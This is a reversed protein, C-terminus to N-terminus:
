EDDTGQVAMSQRLALARALVADRSEGVITVHAMKRGPGVERKDYCHIHVGDGSADGDFGVYRPQGHAGDAGLVNFTVATGRMGAPRLGLGAVARLHQEFQSVACAEITYHGSNHPRPSIENVLLEGGREVFFEVALIGVYDLANAIRAALTRAHETTPADVIAPAVVMELVHRVPHMLLEVVPYFELAGDRDRAVLIALERVIDVQAELLAPVQPLEARDAAERVIAVGRGDYGDRRAKWVFPMSRETAADPRYPEFASTPIGHVRLFHKQLLKDQITELVAASPAVGHGLSELRRLAAASVREIEFTVCDSREALARLSTLSDYAGVLLDDAVGAASCAVDPDLVCLKLGLGRAATAMMRALQGGGAVGVTRAADPARRASSRPTPANGLDNDSSATDLM